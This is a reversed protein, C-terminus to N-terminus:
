GVTGDAAVFNEGFAIVIRRHRNRYMQAEANRGTATAMDIMKLTTWAWMATAILDKPTTPDGPAKADLALWDGYNTGRARAWVFDPNESAVHAAYRTMANWNSDIIATDGYRWWIDWPLLIGADAWGPAGKMSPTEPSQPNFEAFAGESNQGDRVDGMFRQTFAAVDMSFSAADWFVQADGMWGLREDRQPCDTPIGIFNSRQSWLTNRSIRDVLSDAVRLSGTLPLDSSIAEGVIFDLPMEGPWGSIEVCRFGHYTFHPRFTEGAEDGRFIYIDRAEASRLNSTDVTGDPHLIEAFRLTVTTGALATARLLCWGAFNQGFDVVYVDGLRAITKPALTAFVRM